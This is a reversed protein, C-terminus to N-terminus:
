LRGAITHADAPCMADTVPLSLMRASLDDAVPTAEVIATDRFLRQEGLHPSFYRGVGVGDAALAAGIADRHPALDRPLLVPM